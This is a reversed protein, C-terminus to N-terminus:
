YLDTDLGLEACDDNDGYNKCEISLIGDKSFITKFLYSWGSGTKRIVTIYQNDTETEAYIESSVTFSNNKLVDASLLETIGSADPLADNIIWYTIINEAAQRANALGEMARGREVARRYQPVAVAAMVAVIIMVILLEM